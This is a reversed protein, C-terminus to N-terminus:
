ASREPTIAKNIKVRAGFHTKYFNAECETYLHPRRALSPVLDTVGGELVEEQLGLNGLCRNAM